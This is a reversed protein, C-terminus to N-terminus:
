VRADEPLFELVAQRLQRLENIEENLRNIVATNDNTLAQPVFRSLFEIPSEASRVATKLQQFNLWINIPQPTGRHMGHFVMLLEPAKVIGPSDRCSTRNHIAQLTMLGDKAYALISAREEAAQKEKAKQKIRECVDSEDNTKQSDSDFFPEGKTIKAHTAMVVAVPAIVPLCASFAIKEFVGMKKFFSM